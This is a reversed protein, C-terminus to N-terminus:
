VPDTQSIHFVTATRPFRGKEIDGSKTTREYPVWTIVQVGKEGKRVQRSLAQWAAYTFVNERPNIQDLPIGREAFQEIIPVYNALSIGSRARTLAERQREVREQPTLRRKTRM